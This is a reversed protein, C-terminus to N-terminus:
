KRVDLRDVEDAELRLRGFVHRMIVDVLRRSRRALPASRLPTLYQGCLHRGCHLTAHPDDHPWPGITRHRGAHQRHPPDYAPTTGGLPLSQVHQVGMGLLPFVLPRVRIVRYGM